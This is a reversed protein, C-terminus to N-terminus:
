CLIESIEKIEKGIQQELSTIEKELDEPSINLEKLQAFVKAQEEVLSKLREGYRAIDMLRQEIQKDFIDVQNKYNNM